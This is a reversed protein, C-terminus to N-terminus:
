KRPIEIDSEHDCEVSLGSRLSFISNPYLVDAEM